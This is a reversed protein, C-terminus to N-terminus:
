EEETEYRQALDPDALLVRDIAQAMNLGSGTKSKMLEVAKTEVERVAGGRTMGEFVGPLAPHLFNLTTLNAALYKWFGHDSFYSKASLSSFACLLLALAVLLSLTKKM